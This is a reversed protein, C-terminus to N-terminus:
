NFYYMNLKTKFHILYLLKLINKKLLIHYTSTLKKKPLRFIIIKKRDVKNNNIDICLTQFVLSFIGILQKKWINQNLNKNRNKVFYLYPIKILIISKKKQIILKSRLYYSICELKFSKDLYYNHCLLDYLDHSKISTELNSFLIKLKYVHKFLHCFCITNYFYNLHIRRDIRLHLHYQMSKRFIIEKTKKDLVNYNGGEELSFYYNKIIKNKFLYSINHEWHKRLCQKWDWLILIDLCYKLHKSQNSYVRNVCHKCKKIYLLPYINLFKSFEIMNLYDTIFFNKKKFIMMPRFSVHNLIDKQITYPLTNIDNLFINSM